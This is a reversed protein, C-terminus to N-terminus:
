IANCRIDLKLFSLNGFQINIKGNIQLDYVFLVFKDCVTSIRYFHYNDILTVPNTTRCKASNARSLSRAVCRDVQCSVDRTPEKCHVTKTYNNINKLM